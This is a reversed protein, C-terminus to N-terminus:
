RSRICELSGTWVQSQSAPRRVQRRGVTGDPLSMWGARTVVLFAAPEGRSWARWAAYWALDAKRAEPRGTREWVLMPARHGEGPRLAAALREVVDARMWGDLRRAARAPSTWQGALSARAADYTWVSLRPDGDPPVARRVWRDVLGAVLRAAAAPPMGALSEPVPSPRLTM